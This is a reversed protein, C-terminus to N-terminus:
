YDIGKIEKNEFYDKDHGLFIKDRGFDKVLNKMLSFRSKTENNVFPSDYPAFVDGVFCLGNYIYIVGSTSHIGETTIIEINKFSNNNIPILRENWESYNGLLKAQLGVNINNGNISKWVYSEWLAEEPNRKFNEIEKESCYIPVNKIKGFHDAHLHTLLVAKLKGYKKIINEVEESYYQGGPDILIGENGLFYANSSICNFDNLPPTIKVIRSNEILNVKLM